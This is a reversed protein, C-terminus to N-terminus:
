GWSSASTGMLPLGVVALYARSFLTISNYLLPTPIGNPPLFPSPKGPWFWAQRVERRHFDRSKLALLALLHLPKPKRIQVNLGSGAQGVVRTQRLLYLYVSAESVYFLDKSMTEGQGTGLIRGIGSLGTRPPM